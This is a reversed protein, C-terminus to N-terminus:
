PKMEMIRNYLLQNNYLEHFIKYKKEHYEKVDDAEPYIILGAKNMRIMGEFVTSYKGSAVAGLIASGLLVAETETPLVIKCGTVNAHEQLFVDNKTGGGTMMITDISYGNRNMEEIIHRTGYAIAQITALYLLALDDITSSLRLGSVMGVLNPNARPSRNGHFYPLVHLKNTLQGKCSVGKKAALQDLNENLIQYVSMGSSQAKEKLGESHVSSFIVHDILSGTASQGGENLWLGPIMASYYPGWIGNIFRPEDSAVMHCSSTGGILALRKELIQLNENNDSVDMGLLGLGGAHADIIAVGVPTNVELGFEHAAKTDLGAGVAEGVPRVRNGIQRYESDVLDDLGIKHFFSDVWGKSSDGDTAKHSMYTWKCTTTCVSRVDQGTARYVLYDSLDMFKHARRWIDPKNRKLWLLKPIQMEPSIAGGVYRLVEHDTRNIEEAEGIARHDMWVIINQHDSNDPGVSIPKDDEGLVVLSCTADFGIGKVQRPSIGSDEILAKFCICCADWIDVSSQQVFDPEPKWIKIPQNKTLLLTGEENFLGVRVSGTGVDCGIFCDNKM